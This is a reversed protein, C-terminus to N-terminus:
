PHKRRWAVDFAVPYLSSTDVSYGLRQVGLMRDADGEEKALIALCQKDTVGVTSQALVVNVGAEAAYFSETIIQENTGLMMETETVLALSLGIVTLLVLALLAVIFVSGREGHRRGALRRAPCDRYGARPRAEIRGRYSRM